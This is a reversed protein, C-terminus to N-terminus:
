LHLFPALTTSQIMRATRRCSKDNGTTQEEGDTRFDKEMNVLKKNRTSQLSRDYHCSVQSLVVLGVDWLM